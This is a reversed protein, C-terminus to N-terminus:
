TDSNTTIGSIKKRRFISVICKALFLINNASTYNQGGGGGGGGVLVASKFHKLM